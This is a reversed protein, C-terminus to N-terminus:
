LPLKRPVLFNFEPRVKQVSAVQVLDGDGAWTACYCLVALRYM